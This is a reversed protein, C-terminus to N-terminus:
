GELSGSAKSLKEAEKNDSEAFITLPFLTATNRVGMEISRKERLDLNLNESNRYSESTQFCRKFLM